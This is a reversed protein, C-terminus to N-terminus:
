KDGNLISYDFGLPSKYICVNATQGVSITQWYATSCLLSLNSNEINLVLIHKEPRRYGGKYFEKNIITFNDCTYLTSIKSNLNHGCLMFYGVFGASFYTTVHSYNSRMVSNIIVFPKIKKAIIMGIVFGFLGFVFAFLYPSNYNKFNDVAIIGAFIGSFLILLLGTAVIVNKLISTKESNHKIHRNM